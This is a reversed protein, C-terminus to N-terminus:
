NEGAAGTVSQSLSHENFSINMVDSFRDGQIPAAKSMNKLDTELQSLSKEMQKLNKQVSEDSM